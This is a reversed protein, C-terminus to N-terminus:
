QEIYEFTSLVNPKGDGIAVMHEYHASPQHDVTRITWGDQDRYIGPKKLNIMPEICFVMGEKLKMGNGRRGYNSVEPPEHLQKGIGHGVMEKVIGFGYPKIHSQVANGIDGLRKGAIAEQVGANLAEKTATMLQQVAPDVRGVAFTYASDGYFENMYVGCDVSLIDGEQLITDESPLGHVVSDNISMCLANPFPDHSPDPTYGKFAPEAGHDRIFAEAIQDIRLTNEGPQIYPKIHALTQAVLDASKRMLEIEEPTKLYYKARKM